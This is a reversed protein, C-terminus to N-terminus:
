VGDDPEVPIRGNFRNMAVAIGESQCCEIALRATCIMEGLAEEQERPFRSLVWRDLAWGPPVADVGCRLRAYRETGLHREISRLGNHGGHSGEPRLRVQGLPLAVDDVVVLLDAASLKFWELWAAVAKGSDNMYTLPKVLREGSDLSALDSFRDGEHRFAAGEEAAWADLVLFGVNHRTFLYQPGPNGLGVVLKYTPAAV